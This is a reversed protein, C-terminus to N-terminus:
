DHPEGENSEVMVWASDHKASQCIADCIIANIAGDAFTAYRPCAPMAGREADAYFAAMADHFTGLFGQGFPLTQTQVGANKQAQHLQYPHESDWWISDTASSVELQLQNVRGHSVESLLVHGVAGNSFHLSISATDETHIHLNPASGPRRMVGNQLQRDPQLCGFTASVSQIELGTWFRVLDIWHSGIETVARMPGAVEPQYRWSYVDPLAHFEQLYRGHIFLPAGFDNSAITDKALQSVGYFRNNFNVAAVLNKKQALNSIKRAQEADVTLPKECFLHVNAALCTELVDAHSVPPTCIHVSDVQSKELATKVSSFSQEAEWQEAFQQAKELNPNVVASIEHGLARLAQAHLGAVFGTGIIATRM